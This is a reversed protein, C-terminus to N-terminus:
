YGVIISDQSGLEKLIQGKGTEPDLFSHMKTLLKFYTEKKQATERAVDLAKYDKIEWHVEVHAQGLGFATIYFGKLTWSKPQAAAFRKQNTTVWKEFETWRGTQINSSYIYLMLKEKRKTEVILCKPYVPCWGTPSAGGKRQAM